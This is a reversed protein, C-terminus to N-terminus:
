LKKKRVLIRKGSLLYVCLLCLQLYNLHDSYEKESKGSIAIINDHLKKACINTCHCDLSTVARKRAM